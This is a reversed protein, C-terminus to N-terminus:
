GMFDRFLYLIEQLRSFRDAPKKAKNINGKYPHGSLSILDSCGAVIM